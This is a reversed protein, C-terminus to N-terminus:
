EERLLMSPDVRLARQAPIWTALLGLLAMALVVGGLVLPDRPTAQEVILALVRSALIGLILGVASGIALLKLARGLATKLVEKPQAGIAIRIGLEKLRKSVSYAAMGFIGTAALMAGMIGMVGLAITAMRPGFLPFDLAELRTQITLPVGSDLQRLANRMATALQAPNRKSRVILCTASSPSQLIPLFVAPQPNETLGDYKGQEAIGVVQVRDGSRVKFYAGIANPVSGFVRRVFEPNIVAVLPSNKDDHWTFDRGSLLTTGAARFYDPSVNFTDVEAAVNAPRLDSTADKFVQSNNTGDRLPLVDSLAVAEVGPITQLAEIMRKQMPPVKDGVYGAMMLDTDALMTNQVDFGYNGHLSRVLGRIAVISSTVLVACIAIQAVLLGDRAGMRRGVAGASGSKIVQYPDTRLVQRVPVAGFLFGTALSLLLAFAYVHSDPNVSLYVPFKPFPQWVSLARLLLVSGWLGVAGGVLSILVAETFLRRLIRGRTSGLALRLAVEKSRDAARAAFLSGLNACAALLILGSLLMLGTMFERVPRGLYDGYLSPRNLTFNMKGDDKPYMKALYEGVANLDATAQAPTIGRKLHGMIMFVWRSGREDFQSIGDVQERNVIPVFFAPNFFLLTGHFEPPAVGLITFPHKDVQVARGMVGRDDQFHTHWYSYSLVIYPASDPGREDSAHFFRGFYPQIGLADFYNGSTEYIWAPSPDGGTDIGAVTINYALLDDFSRNRGRLDVYDPYSMHADPGPRFIAYLSDAKPVNLPRLVFANMVSFVVANAGIALALTFVAAITFSPSKRLARLSFVVDQFMSEILTGGAQERCEEKFREQGGFEIRARREAEARRLGSHVLDDTRLQIHSQLEEDMEANMQSRHFLSALRFRISDLLKM